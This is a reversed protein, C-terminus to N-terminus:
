NNMFCAPCQLLLYLMAAATVVVVDGAFALPVILYYIVTSNDEYAGTISMVRIDQQGIHAPWYIFSIDQSGKTKSDIVEDNGTEKENKTDEEDFVYSVEYIKETMPQNKNLLTYLQHRSKHNVSINEVPLLSASSLTGPGVAECGPETKEIPYWYCTANDFPCGGPRLRFSEIANVDGTLISRPLTLIDLRPKGGTGSESLEVCVSIDGNDKKIASVVNKIKWYKANEPSAKEKALQLAQTTCGSFYFLLVLSLFILIFFELINSNIPLIKKMAMSGSLGNLVLLYCSDYWFRYSGNGQQKLTKHFTLTRKSTWLIYQQLELRIHKRICYFNL